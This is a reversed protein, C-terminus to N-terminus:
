RSQLYRIIDMSEYMWTEKGNDDTILLCPVTTRGTANEQQDSWRPNQRVNRKEVEFKLDPLVRLVRQCFPCSDFYYLAYKM